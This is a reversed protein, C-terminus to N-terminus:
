YAYKRSNQTTLISGAFTEAVPAYYRSAGVSRKVYMRYTKSDITFGELAEGLANLGDIYGSNVFGGSESAPEPIGGIRISGLRWPTPPTDADAHTADVTKAIRLAAYPPLMDSAANDGQTDIGFYYTPYPVYGPPATTNINIHNLQAHVSILALWLDKVESDFWDAIDEPAVQAPSPTQCYYPLINHMSVGYAITVVDIIVGCQTDINM